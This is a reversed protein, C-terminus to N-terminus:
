SQKPEMLAIPPNSAFVELAWSVNEMIKSTHLLVGDSSVFFNRFGLADFYSSQPLMVGPRTSLVDRTENHLGVPNRFRGVRLGIQNTTSNGIPTSYDLVAFDLQVDEIEATRGAARTGVQIAAHLGPYPVISSGLGLETFEFSTDDSTGFFQNESTHIIAQSAFGHLQLNGSNEAVANSMFLSAALVFKITNITLENLM